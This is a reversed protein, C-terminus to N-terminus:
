DKNWTKRVFINLYDHELNSDFNTKLLDELKAKVKNSGAIKRYYFKTTYEGIWSPNFTDYDFKDIDILWNYYDGLNKIELFKENNLDIDLKFCMNLLNGVETFRTDAEGSMAARFSIQSNKPIADEIALNLLDDTLEVIDFIVALHLLQFEFNLQLSEKIKKTIIGKYDVSDLISYLHVAIISSHYERCKTCEEFSINIIQSFEGESFKIKKKHLNICDAISEIFNYNHYKPNLLCNKLFIELLRIDIDKGCRYLYINVFKINTERLVEEDKLFSFLKKAFSNIYDFDFESISVLTLINNFISSYHNWFATNAKEGIEIFTEKLDINKNFFNDILEIFSDDNYFSSQSYKIKKIKYRRFFKNIQDPEGYILMLKITWDDFQKLRSTNNIKENIAHSAFLGELFVHFIEKYENFRDYIIGNDRIFSNFIAFESLLEGIYNNSSYGGNLQSYYTDVIKSTLTQIKNKSQTYFATSNLFNLIKSNEKTEYFGVLYPLNIEKLEKVLDHKANEGYYSNRIFISLKHLNFQLLFSRTNYKAAESKKLAISYLEVSKLYNGIKYQLFALTLIDDLDNPDYQEITTFCNVFLFKEFSCKPCSCAKKENYDIRIGERTQLNSVKFIENQTLGTLVKKLKTEYDIVKEFFTNDIIEIEGNDAINFSKMFDFIALNETYLTFVNYSSYSYKSNKFPYHNVFIEIPVFMIEKHVATLYDYLQDLIAKTRDIFIVDNAPQENETESSLVMPLDKKLQNIARGIDSYYEIKATPYHEIIDSHIEIELNSPNGFDGKNASIFIFGEESGEFHKLASYIIYADKTSEIKNHFPAKRDITRDSIYAKTENDVTVMIAESILKDISSIQNEVNEIKPKLHPLSINEKKSVEIVHKYKTAASDSFKKRQLEKHKSWEDIIVKNCIINIYNNDKWFELHPLLKNDYEDLLDVWSCTDILINKM